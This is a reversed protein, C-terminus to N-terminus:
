HGGEYNRRALERVIAELQARDDADVSATYRFGLRRVRTDIRLAFYQMRRELEAIPLTTLDPVTM